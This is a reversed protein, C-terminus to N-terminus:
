PQRAAAPVWGGTPGASSTRARVAKAAQYRADVTAGSRTRTRMLASSVGHNSSSKATMASVPTRPTTSGLVSVTVCIPRTAKASGAFPKTM